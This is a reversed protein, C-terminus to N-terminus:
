RVEVIGMSETTSATTGNMGISTTTSGYENRAKIYPTADGSLTVSKSWSAMVYTSDLVYTTDTQTYITDVTFVNWSGYVAVAKQERDGAVYWVYCRDCTASYEVAQEKKCSALFIVALAAFFAKM